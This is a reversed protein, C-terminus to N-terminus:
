YIMVYPFAKKAAGKYVEKAVSVSMALLQNAANATNISTSLYANYENTGKLGITQAEDKIDRIYEPVPTTAIITAACSVGNVLVDQLYKDTNWNDQIGAACDVGQQIAPAVAVDFAVTVATGVGPIASIAGSLFASTYDGMTGTGKFLDLGTKGEISNKVVGGIFQSAIGLIGGGVITLATAVIASTGSSDLLLVPNNNCYAFM